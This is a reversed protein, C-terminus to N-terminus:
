SNVQVTQKDNFFYLTGNNESNKYDAVCVANHTENTNSIPCIKIFEKNNNYFRNGNLVSSFTIEKRIKKYYNKIVDNLTAEISKNMVKEQTM